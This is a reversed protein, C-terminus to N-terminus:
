VRFEFGEVRFVKQEGRESESEIRARRIEGYLKVYLGGSATLYFVAKKYFGAL